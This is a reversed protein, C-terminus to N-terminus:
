AIAPTRERRIMVLGADWSWVVTALVFTTLYIGQEALPWIEVGAAGSLRLLWAGTVRLGTYILLVQVLRRSPRRGTVVLTLGLVLPLKALIFPLFYQVQLEVLHAPFVTYLFGWELGSAVWGSTLAYGGGVILADMWADDRQTALLWVAALFLDLWALQHLPLRLTFYVLASLVVVTAARRAPEDSSKVAAIIGAVLLAGFAIPSDWVRLEVMAIAATWAATSRWRARGAMGDLVAFKAAVAMVYLPVLGALGVVPAAWTVGNMRAVFWVGLVAVAARWVGHVHTARAALVVLLVPFLMAGPAGSQQLALEVVFLATLVIANAWSVHAGPVGRVILWALAVAVLAVAVAIAYDVPSRSVHRTVFGGRPASDAAIPLMRALQKTDYPASRLTIGLAHSAIFRINSTAIPGVTVGPKVDPGLLLGFTPIHIGTKHEGTASHGHDGYVLLYDKPGLAAAFSAVLSDAYAFERRYREADIGTEHAVWDASEYHCVVVDFREDRWGRMAIEPRLRDAQYMDLGRADPARQTFYPGFQTFPEVAVILTRKGLRSVDQFFSAIGLSRFRFNQVLNVLQTEAHGSFAARVAPVTFGEFVTEMEWSAGQQRLRAVHPMLRPDTATEYRWSDIHLILLRSHNATDVAAIGPDPVAPTPNVRDLLLLSGAAAALVVVVVM